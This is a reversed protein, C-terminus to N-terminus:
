LKLNYKLVIYAPFGIVKSDQIKKLNAICQMRVSTALEYSLLINIDRNKQFYTFTGFRLYAM